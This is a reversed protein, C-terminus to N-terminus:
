AKITNGFAYKTYFCGPSKRKISYLEKIDDRHLLWTVWQHLESSTQACSGMHTCLTRTEHDPVPKTKLVDFAVTHKKFSRFWGKSFHKFFILYPEAGIVNNVSFTYEQWDSM